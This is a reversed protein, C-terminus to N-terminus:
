WSANRHCQKVDFNTEMNPDRLCNQLPSAIFYFVVAAILAAVILLIKKVFEKDM